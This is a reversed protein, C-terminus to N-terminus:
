STRTIRGDLKEAGPFGLAGDVFDKQYDIVFLCEMFSLGGEASFAASVTYFSCSDAQRFLGASNRTRPPFCRERLLARGKRFFRRQRKKSLGLIARGGFFCLSFLRRGRPSRGSPGHRSRLSFCFFKTSFLYVTQRLNVNGM